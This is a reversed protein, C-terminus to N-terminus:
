EIVLVVLSLQQPLHPLQRLANLGFERGSSLFHAGHLTALDERRLWRMEQNLLPRPEGLLQCRFFHLEVSREPYAHTTSFVEAGVRTARVVLRGGANVTAGVVSDGPAVEVPVPEGTLMSVDIASRGDMVVGDTAIKEGPRVVFLDGVQLEDVPVEVEGGDRLVRASKAGLELLARIAAGSRRRARAEFYRGGLVGPDAAPDLVVNRTRMRTIMIAAILIAVVGFAKELTTQRLQQATM